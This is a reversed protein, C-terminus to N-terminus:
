LSPRGRASSPGRGKMWYLPDATCMLSPSQLHGCTSLPWAGADAAADAGERKTRWALLLANSPTGSWRVGNAAREGGALWYGVQHHNVNEGSVETLETALERLSIKSPDRSSRDPRMHVRVSAVLGVDVVRVDALSHLESMWREFTAVVDGLAAPSDHEDALAQLETTPNKLGIALSDLAFEFDPLRAVSAGYSAARVKALIPVLSAIGNALKVASLRNVAFVLSDLPIAADVESWVCDITHTAHEAAIVPVLAAAKDGLKALMMCRLASDWSGLVVRWTGRREVGAMAYAEALTPVLAAAKNALKVDALLELASEWSQVLAL